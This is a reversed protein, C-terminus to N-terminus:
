FKHASHTILVVIYEEQDCAFAAAIAQLYNGSKMSQIQLGLKKGFDPLGFLIETKDAGLIINSVTTKVRLDHMSSDAATCLVISGCIGLLDEAKKMAEAAKKGWKGLFVIVSTFRDQSFPLLGCPYLTPFFSFLLLFIVSGSVKGNAGSGDGASVGLITVSLGAYRGGYVVLPLRGDLVVRGAGIEMAVMKLRRYRSQLLVPKEKWRGEEDCCIMGVAFVSEQSAVTPDKVEECLGSAVLATAHKRTKLRTMCLGAVQNLSPAM